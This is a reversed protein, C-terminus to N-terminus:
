LTIPIGAYFDLIKYSFILKYKAQLLQSEAVILNTKEFLYDVSNILGQRFKEAALDQSEYTSNYQELGAEYEMQASTVDVCAQEIDKRLQNKTDIENLEANQYSIKARSVSSKIQNRQLIPVSLTMAMSPNAKEGLQHFYGTTPDLSLYGTGFGASMSLSPIYGAKAIKEELMASKKNLSANMIQPKIGLAIRYIEQADPEIQHNLFSNLDPHAVTFDDTVQIEMIQMLNVRSIALQSNANALKLKESALQSKVQLYDSRSIARLSLRQEALFLQEQTAEIQQENNKVQEEAFLVQLFANLVSLSISEKITESYFRGSEFDLEAQRIRNTISFGNFVTVVSSASYNTSNSGKFSTEGTTMDEQNSWSQNQRISLDLTPLLQGRASEISVLNSENTLLSKRVQINKELAHNICTELTWVSDRNIEQANSLVNIWTIFM